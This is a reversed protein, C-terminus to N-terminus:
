SRRGTSWKQGIGGVDSKGKKNWLFAMKQEWVKLLFGGLSMVNRDKIADLRSEQEACEDSSNVHANGEGMGINEEAGDRGLQISDM